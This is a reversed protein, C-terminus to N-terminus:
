SETVERASCEGCLIGDHHDRCVLYEYYTFKNSTFQNIKTISKMSFTAHTLKILKARGTIILHSKNIQHTGSIKAGWLCMYRDIKRGDIKIFKSIRLLESHMKVKIIKLDCWSEIDSFIDNLENRTLPEM